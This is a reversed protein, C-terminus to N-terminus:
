RVVTVPVPARRVVMEAVSGLLVRSIGDRGHSGIVVHDCSEAYECIVRAPPGVDTKTEIILSHDGEDIRRNIEDFMTKAMGRQSELWQTVVTPGEGHTSFSMDGPNIVRLIVLTAEPFAEIAYELAKWSQDSGDMPVLVRMGRGRNGTHFIM